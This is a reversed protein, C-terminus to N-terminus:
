HSAQPPCPGIVTTLDAWYLSGHLEHCFQGVFFDKGPQKAPWSQDFVQWALDAHGNYMLNVMDSWLKVPVGCDQDCDPDLPVKPNWEEDAQVAKISAALQAPAPAPKRMSDWALHFAADRFALVIRPAPSEAFSARWYSFAWDAAELQYGGGSPKRVFHALDGSGSNLVAVERFADGLEFIHGAFCCHAGGTWEWIVADPKGLGTVDTGVPIEFRDQNSAFNGGVNFQRSSLSYVVSDGKSIRLCSGASDPLDFLRIVYAGYKVESTQDGGSPCPDGDPRPASPAATQAATHQALFPLALGFLLMSMSVALTRRM